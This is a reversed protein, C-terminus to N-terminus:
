ILQNIDSAYFARRLLTLRNWHLKKKYNYLGVVKWNQSLSLSLAFYTTRTPIKLLSLFYIISCFLPQSRRTRCKNSIVIIEKKKREKKEKKEIIDKVDNVRSFTGVHSVLTLSNFSLFHFILFLSAYHRTWIRMTDTIMYGHESILAPCKM